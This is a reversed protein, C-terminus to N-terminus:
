NVTEIGDPVHVLEKDWPRPKIFMEGKKNLKMVLGFM